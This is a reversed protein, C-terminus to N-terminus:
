GVGASRAEYTDGFLEPSSSSEGARKGSEFCGDMGGFKETQPVRQGHPELRRARLNQARFMPGAPNQEGKEQQTYLLGQLAGRNDLISTLM